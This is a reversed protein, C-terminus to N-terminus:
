KGKKSKPGQTSSGTVIWIYYLGLQIRATVVGSKFLVEGRQFVLVVGTLFMKESPLLHFFFNGM